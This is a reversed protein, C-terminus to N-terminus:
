SAARGCHPCFKSGAPVSGACAGCAGAVLGGGCQGCFRSGGPNGAGCAPCAIAAQAPPAGYAEGFGGGHRGGGHRGGGHHGGGFGRGMLHKFISM